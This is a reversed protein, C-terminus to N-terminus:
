GWRRRRDRQSVLWAVGLVAAIVACVTSVTREWGDVTGWMAAVDAVAMGVIAVVLWFAGRRLDATRREHREIPSM